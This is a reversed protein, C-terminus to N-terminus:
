GLVLGEHIICSLLVSSLYKEIIGITYQLTHGESILLMYQTTLGESVVGYIYVFLLKAVLWSMQYTDCVLIKSSFFSAYRERVGQCIPPMNGRGLAFLALTFLSRKEESYDYYFLKCSLM